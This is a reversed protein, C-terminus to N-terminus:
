DGFRWGAAAVVEPLTTADASNPDGEGASTQARLIFRYPTEFELGSLRIQTRDADVEQKPCDKEVVRGNETRCYEIVYKLLKGNPRRPRRWILHVIAKEESDRPNMPHARLGRVPSPVYHSTNDQITM